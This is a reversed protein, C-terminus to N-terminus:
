VNCAVVLFQEKCDRPVNTETTELVQKEIWIASTHFLRM